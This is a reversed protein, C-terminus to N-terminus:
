REKIRRDFVFPQTKILKVLKFGEHGPNLLYNFEEDIISSPVQLIASQNEKIWNKGIAQTIAMQDYDAWNAPLDSKLVSKIKISAPCDITMIDFAQTLGFQTRHVVNELCALSRSSATYIMKVENPNWRAARGSAM